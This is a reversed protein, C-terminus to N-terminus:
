RKGYSLLRSFIADQIILIIEVYTENALGLTMENRISEYIEHASEFDPFTLVTYCNDGGCPTQQYRVWYEFKYSQLNKAM